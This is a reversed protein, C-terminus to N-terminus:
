RRMVRRVGPFVLASDGVTIGSNANFVFSHTGSADKWEALTADHPQGAGANEIGDWQAVLGDQVYASAPIDASATFAWGVVVACAAALAVRLTRM